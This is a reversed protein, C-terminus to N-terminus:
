FFKLIVKFYTFKPLQEDCLSWSIGWRMTHGQCFEATSTNKVQKVQTLYNNLKLITDKKGCM